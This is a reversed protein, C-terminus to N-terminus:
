CQATHKISKHLYPERIQPFFGQLFFHRQFFEEHFCFKDPELIHVFVKKGFKICILNIKVIKSLVKAKLCKFYVKVHM